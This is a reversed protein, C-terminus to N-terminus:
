KLKAGALKIRKEILTDFTIEGKERMLILKTDLRIFEKVDKKKFICDDEAQGTGLYKEKSSLDFGEESM